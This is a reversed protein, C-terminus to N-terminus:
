GSGDGRRRIAGTWWRWASAVVGDDFGYAQVILGMADHLNGDRLAEAADRWRDHDVPLPIQAVQAATLRIAGRSRATGAARRAAWVSAIPSLLAVLLLDLDTGVDPLVSIVPVSPWLHGDPDAVAEIVRTQTAVLVKPRTRLERWPPVQGAFSADLAEVDVVPHLFRTGAVKTPRAGWWVRAPDVLGVTILRPRSDAVLGDFDAAERVVEAVAYFEERFGATTDAIAAVTPGDTPPLVPVGLTTAALESWSVEVGDDRGSRRIVPVCVHVSADFEIEPLLLDILDAGIAERVPRADRSAIVSMPQVMVVVGGDAVADHAAALFVGATDLYGSRRGLLQAAVESTADDRVTSGGLQGGFPPNGVILDPGIGDVTWDVQLADAHDLRVERVAERSLGRTRAWEGLVDRCVAIADADRDIGWLRALAEDPAVGREVFADAAAILFSGAGCAPDLVAGPVRDDDVMAADFAVRVLKAAVEDPTYHIGDRRRRQPDLSSEYTRGPGGGDVM